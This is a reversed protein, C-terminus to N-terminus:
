MRKNQFYRRLLTMLVLPELGILLESKQPSHQVGDM